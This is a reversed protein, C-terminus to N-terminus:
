CMVLKRDNVNQSDPKLNRAINAFNKLEDYFEDQILKFHKRDSKTMQAQQKKLTDQCIQVMAAMEYRSTVVDDPNALRPSVLGCRYREQFEKLTPLMWAPIPYPLPPADLNAGIVVAQPGPRRVPPLIQPDVQPLQPSNLMVLRMVLQKKFDQKIQRFQADELKMLSVNQQDIAIVCDLLTAEDLEIVGYRSSVAPNTYPANQCVKRDIMRQMFDALQAQKIEWEFFQRLQGLTQLDEPRILANQASAIKDDMWNSCTMIAAAMEHRNIGMRKDLVGPVCAYRDNLGQLQQFVTDSQRIPLPYITSVSRPTVDEAIAPQLITTLIAIPLLPLATLVLKM